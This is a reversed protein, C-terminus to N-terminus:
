PLAGYSAPALEGAKHVRASMLDVLQSVPTGVMAVKLEQLGGWELYAVYCQLEAAERM